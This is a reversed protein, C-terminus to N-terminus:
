VNEKEGVSANEKEDVSTSVATRVSVAIGSSAVRFTSVGVNPLVAPLGPMWMQDIWHLGEQPIECQEAFAKIFATHKTADLAIDIGDEFTPQIRLYRDPLLRECQYDAIGVTGDTVLKFLNGDRKRPLIWGLAGWRYRPKPLYKLSLGAGISLLLIEHPEPNRDEPQARRGAMALYRPDLAQALACMSPNNSYVGGDVYGKFTPFFVPAASTCMGVEWTLEEADNRHRSSPNPTSHPLNHFLKPKWSRLREEGSDVDFAAILVNKKLDGLRSIDFFRQLTRQRSTSRYKSLFLSLFQALPEGTWGFRPRGFTDEGREFTACIEDLTAEITTHGLGHALALAIMGGSSTGAILDVDDLFGPFRHCLRRLVHATVLGCIGGGDLALVRYTAM